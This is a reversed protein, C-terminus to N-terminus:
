SGEKFERALLLAGAVAGELTTSVTDAICEEGKFNEESREVAHFLRVAWRGRAKQVEARNAPPDEDLWVELRIWPDNIDPMPEDSM